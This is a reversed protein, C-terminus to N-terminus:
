IQQLEHCFTMTKNKKIRNSSFRNYGLNAHEAFGSGALRGKVKDIRGTILIVSGAHGFYHDAITACQM